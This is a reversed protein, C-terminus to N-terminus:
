PTRELPDITIADLAAQDATLEAAGPRFGNAQLIYAVIDTYDAATLSGPRDAPMTTRIKRHLAAVPEGRWSADFQEHALAPVERPEDGGLNSAHCGACVREFVVHGREAQAATFVGESARRSQQAAAVLVFAAFLFAFLGARPPTM